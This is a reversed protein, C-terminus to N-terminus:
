LCFRHYTNLPLLKKSSMSSFVWTNIQYSAFSVIKQSLKRLAIWFDCGVIRQSKEVVAFSPLYVVNNADIAKAIMLKGEYKKICNHQM